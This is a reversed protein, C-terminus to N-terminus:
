DIERKREKKKKSTALFLECINTACVSTERAPMFRWGGEGEM